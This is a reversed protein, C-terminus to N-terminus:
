EHQFTQDVQKSLSSKFVEDDNEFNSIINGTTPRGTRKDDAVSGTESFKEVNRGQSMRCAYEM